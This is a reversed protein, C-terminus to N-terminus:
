GWFDADVTLRKVRQCTVRPWLGAWYHSSCPPTPPRTSCPQPVLNPLTSMNRKSGKPAFPWLSQFPPVNNFFVQSLSTIQTRALGARCSNVTIIYHTHTQAHAHIHTILSEGHEGVYWSSVSAPLPHNIPIISVKRRKEREREWVCACVCVCVWVRLLVMRIRTRILKNRKRWGNVVSTMLWQHLFTLVGVPKLEWMEWISTM